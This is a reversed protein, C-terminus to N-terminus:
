LGVGEGFAPLQYGRGTLVGGIAPDALHPLEVQVPAGCAAYAREIGDLTAVDPVGGFGRGAVKNFPSGGEAFSAAGGAVPILFGTGGGRRRHAAASAQGVLQVEVREIREALASDCFLPTRVANM